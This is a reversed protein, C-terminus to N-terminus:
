DKMVEGKKDKLKWGRKVPASLHTSYIKPLTTPSKKRDAEESLITPYV